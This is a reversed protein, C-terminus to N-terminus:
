VQCKQRKNKRIYVQGCHEKDALQKKARKASNLKYLTDPNCDLTLAKQFTEIALEYDKSTKAMKLLANGKRTLVRALVWSNSDLENKYFEITTEIDKKKKKLAAANGRENEKNAKAKIEVEPNASGLKAREADKLLSILSENTPDLELGKKCALVAKDYRKVRHHVEGLLLYLLYDTPDLEIAINFDNIADDYRELLDHTVGLQLYLFHNNPDLLIAVTYHEIAEDYQKLGYHATGLQAHGYWRDPKLLIAKKADSLAESYKKLAVYVTSRNYYLVHNTPDLNIAFTYLDIM